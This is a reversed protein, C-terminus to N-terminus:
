LPSADLEALREAHLATWYAQLNADGSAACADLLAAWLTPEYPDSELGRSLADIAGAVDDDSRRREALTTAAVVRQRCMTSRVEVVWDVSGSEPLLPPAAIDLAASLAEADSSQVLDHFRPVDFDVDVDVALRYSHEVRAVTVRGGSAADVLKRAASVATQLKPRAKDDADDPWLAACLLDQHVARGGHAALLRLVERARPRLRDLAMVEGAVILEFGGFCRVAVAPGTPPAAAAPSPVSSGDVQARAVVESALRFWRLLAPHGDCAHPPPSEGSRVALLALLASSTCDVLESDGDVERWASAPVDDGDVIGLVALGFNRLWLDTVVDVLKGLQTAAQGHDFGDIWQNLTLLAAAVLQFGEALAPNDCDALRRNAGPRRGLFAAVAGVFAEEPRAADLVVGRGDLVDRLARVWLDAAPSGASTFSVLQLRERRATDAAAASLDNTEVKAYTSMAPTFEGAGRYRRAVALLWWPDEALVDPVEDTLWSARAAMESGRQNLLRAADDWRGARLYVEFAESLHDHAELIGAAAEQRRVLDAQGYEHVVRGRLHAGLVDHVLFGDGDFAETVFLQRASLEDLLVASDSRGRLEDCLDARLRTFGVVEFLFSRVDPTLSEVVNRKLFEWAPGRRGGIAELIDRRRDPGGDSTALHFLQLGAAWGGTRRELEALEYPTLKEGYVDAFLRDIEWSRFRVVDPTVKTLRGRVELLSINIGPVARSLLLVAVSEPLDLLFEDFAALASAGLVDLEDVVLLARRDGLQECRGLLGDADLDGTLDGGTAEAVAVNLHEFFVTEDVDAAGARYWIVQRDTVDAVQAAARTKGSGAPAALVVIGTADLADAIVEVVRVRSSMAGLTPRLRAQPVRAMHAKPEGAEWVPLNGRGSPGRQRVRDRVTAM